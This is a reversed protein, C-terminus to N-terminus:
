KEPIPNAKWEPKARFDNLQQLCFMPLSLEAPEFGRCTQRFASPCAIKVIIMFKSQFNDGGLHSSGQGNPKTKCSAPVNDLPPKAQALSPAHHPFPLNFFASELQLLPAHAPQFQM